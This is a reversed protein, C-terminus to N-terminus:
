RGIRCAPYSRLACYACSLGGAIEEADHRNGVLRLAGSFVGKSTERVLDPFAGDLDAALAAALDSPTVTRM